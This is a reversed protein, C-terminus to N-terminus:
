TVHFEPRIGDAVDLLCGLDEGNPQKLIQIHAGHVSLPHRSHGLIEDQRSPDASLRDVGAHLLTRLIKNDKIIPM